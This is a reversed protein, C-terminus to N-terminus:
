ARRPVGAADLRARLDEIEPQWPGGFGRVYYSPHRVALHAVGKRDLFKHATAGVAVVVQPRVFGLFAQLHPWCAEMEDPKPPRNDPPRCRVINTICWGGGLQLAAIWQDLLKGSRGVFPQGRADEDAGPGEGVFLVRADLQGRWVVVRARGECLRCDKCALDLALAAGDRPHALREPTDFPQPPAAAARPVAECGARPPHPNRERARRSAFPWPPTRRPPQM